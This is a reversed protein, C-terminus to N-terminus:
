LELIIILSLLVGWSGVMGALIDFLSDVLRHKVWVKLSKWSYGPLMYCYFQCFEWGLLIGFVLASAEPLLGYLWGLILIPSLLVGFKLHKSTNTIM